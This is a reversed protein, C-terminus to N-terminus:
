PQSQQARLRKLRYDLTPRTIGLLRAARSVNGSARALARELLAAEFAELDCNEDLLTDAIEEAARNRSGSKAGSTRRDIRAVHPFLHAFSITKERDALIVGRELVNALERVNGPWDYTRITNMARDSVHMPGKGHMATYLKVFHEVLETIDEPRDRLPPVTVTYTNLRYLLDARFEGAEVAENLDKNTAAIIRVDVKRANQGGVREVEGDQLVRLLTAQARLSLEGIEDLFLTGGDAREFRGMRSEEAGTFAGRSVGFLEAEILDKPIASCNVAVFPQDSRRSAKHVATACMDKGVGTEGLLLVSVNTSAAKVLLGRAELFEPSCGVMEDFGRVNTVTDRLSVVQHQLSMLQDAIRSPKYPLLLEEANPWDEAFRGELVCKEDGCGVCSTEQFLAQRGMFRTAYGTAYGTQIWCIPELSTGFEARFVEAEFSNDWDFVGRFSRSQDDLELVRPTVKVQGTLMHAQPGVVFVDQLTADPRLRKATDADTEGASFGMRMLASRAREMGLSEILERRLARMESSGLLIMREEGLWIRGESAEFRLLERLDQMPPLSLPTDNM